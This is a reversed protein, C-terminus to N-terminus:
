KQRVSEFRAVPDGNADYLELHSGFVKWTLTKELTELFTREREMLSPICAMRTGGLGKFVLAEGDQAFTGLLNNCGTSGQM